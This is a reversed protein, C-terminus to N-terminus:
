PFKLHAVPVADTLWVGNESRFFTHGAAHMAAADVLLIVPKGHRSGVARATAEDASLHAHHREGRVLGTARIADLFRTATGHFLVPPPTQPPYDLRVEVSHGQNARIRAGTADFAFRKKDSSRVVEELRSRDIPFGARACGALLEDVAVWGAPDLRLGAREPEHRLVFSLFTSLHVSDSPPPM